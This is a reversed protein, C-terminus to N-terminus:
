FEGPEFINQTLKLKNNIYVIGLIAEKRQSLCMPAASVNYKQLASGTM